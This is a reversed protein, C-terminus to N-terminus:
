VESSIGGGEDWYAKPATCSPSGKKDASTTKLIHARSASRAPEAGIVSDLKIRLSTSRFSIRENLKITLEWEMLISGKATRELVTSVVMM